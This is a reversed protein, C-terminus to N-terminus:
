ADCPECVHVSMCVRAGQFAHLCFRRCLRSDCLCTRMCACLRGRLCACVCMCAEHYMCSLVQWCMCLRMHMRYCACKRMLVRTFVWTCVFFRARVCARVCASMNVNLCVRMCVGVSCCIFGCVVRGVGVCACAGVRAGGWVCVKLLYEYYSDSGPGITSDRHSWTRSVVHFGSGVLGLGSRQDFLVRAAHRAAAEYAPKGTLRSLLGFELLLTGACATCSINEGPLLGQLVCPARVTVYLTAPRATSSLRQLDSSNVHPLM